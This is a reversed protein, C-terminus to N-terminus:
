CGQSTITIKKLAGVITKVEDSTNDRGLSLRITGKARMKDLNIARLVHSIQTKEGDCASGTSVAIGMLDLRHLMAEGSLGPFSLSLIGPAFPPEGNRGYPVESEELGALLQQELDRIYLQDAEITACHKELAVAMGVIGAVNETGSRMGHEQAGGYIYPALNTGKRVYLFGVGRPGNFKHASASLLDVGECNSQVNVPIHGVAQVADTHFVIRSNAGSTKSNMAQLANQTECTVAALERIPQITGVENNVMMVSVFTTKGTLARKLTEPLVHGGRDPQIIRIDCGRRGAAEAASLVAHHEIASVLIEKERPIEWTVGQVAWNDSETGGSTFYIEEPEAGICGAITERAKKLAMKPERSIRYPQSPNAYIDRLYPLMAELAEEDLKTTAAHDAYIM